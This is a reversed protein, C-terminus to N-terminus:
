KMCGWTHRLAAEALVRFLGKDWNEPDRVSRLEIWSVVAKVMNIYETDPPICLRDHPVWHSYAQMGEQIAIVYGTCVGARGQAIEAKCIPLMVKPDFIAIGLPGELVKAQPPAALLVNASLLAVFFKVKMRVAQKDRM